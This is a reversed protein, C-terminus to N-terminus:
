FLFVFFSLFFSCSMPSQHVSALFETAGPCVKSEASTRPHIISFCLHVSLCLRLPPFFSLSIFVLLSPPRDDCEACSSDSQGEGERENVPWWWSQGNCPSLFARLSLLLYPCTSTTMRRQGGRNECKQKKM